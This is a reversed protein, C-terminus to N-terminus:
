TSASSATQSLSKPALARTRKSGPRALKSTRGKGLGDASTRCIRPRGPSTQPASDPTSLSTTTRLGHLRDLGQTEKKGDSCHRCLWIRDLVPFLLGPGSNLSPAGQPQSGGCRSGGFTARDSASSGGQPSLYFPAPVGSVALAEHDGFPSSPPAASLAGILPSVLHYRPARRGRPHPTKSKSPIEIRTARPIGRFCM